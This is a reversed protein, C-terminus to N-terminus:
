NANQIKPHNIIHNTTVNQNYSIYAYLLYNHEIHLSHQHYLAHLMCVSVWSIISKRCIVKGEKSNSIKCLKYMYIYVIQLHVHISTVFLM